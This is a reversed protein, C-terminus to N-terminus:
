TATPTVPVPPTTVADLFRDLIAAATKQHHSHIMAGERYLGCRGRFIAGRYEYLFFYSRNDFAVKLGTTDFTTRPEFGSAVLRDVYNWFAETSLGSDVTKLEALLQRTEETM